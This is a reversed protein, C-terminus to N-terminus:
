CSSRSAHWNARAEAIHEPALMLRTERVPDSYRYPDEFLGLRYKARLVRRVAEDVVAEALRGARM